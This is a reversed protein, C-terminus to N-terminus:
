GAIALEGDSMYNTVPPVYAQLRRLLDAYEQKGIKKKASIAKKDVHVKGPTPARPIRAEICLKKNRRGNGYKVVHEVGVQRLYPRLFKTDAANEPLNVFELFMKPSYSADAKAPNDRTFMVMMWVFELTAVITENKMTGKFMRIEVTDDHSFDVAGHDHGLHYRPDRSSPDLHRVRLPAPKGPNDTIWAAPSRAYARYEPSDVYRMHGFTTSQAFCREGYNNKTISSLHRWPARHCYNNATRRSIKNLMDQMTPMCAFRLMNAQHRTSLAARSVHVHMGCTTTNHSRAGTNRPFKGLVWERHAPLSRPQTVMELGDGEVLSGDQEFGRLAPGGIGGSLALIEGAFQERTKGPPPYMELEFGMHFEHGATWAKAKRTWDDSQLVTLDSTGHYGRVNLAARPRPPEARATEAHAVGEHAYNRIYADCEVRWWSPSCDDVHYYSGGIGRQLEQYTNYVVRAASSLIMAGSYDESLMADSCWRCYGTAGVRLGRFRTLRSSPIPALCRSCTECGAAHRTAIDAISTTVGLTSLGTHGCFVEVRRMLETRQAHTPNAGNRIAKLYARTARFLNTM